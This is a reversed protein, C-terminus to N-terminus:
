LVASEAERSRGDAIREHLRDSHHVIVQHRTKAVLIQICCRRLEGSCPASQLPAPGAPATQLVKAQVPATEAAESILALARTEAYAGIAWADEELPQHRYRDYDASGMVGILAHSEWATNKYDENKQYDAIRARVAQPLVGPTRKWTEVWQQEGAHALEHAANNVIEGFIYDRARRRDDPRSLDLKEDAVFRDLRQIFRGYHFLYSRTAGFYNASGQADRATTDFEFKLDEVGYARQFLDILLTLQEKMREPKDIIELMQNHLTQLMRRADSQNFVPL